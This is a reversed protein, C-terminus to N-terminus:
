AAESVATAFATAENYLENHNLCHHLCTILRGFLNRLAAAHADGAARRRDYHDRCGPSKTLSTFAWVHGTAMLYKNAIRRYSVSSGSGSAWTLPAAGAYARLGRATAFRTNDDGLEAFLRLAILPGVGPFSRYIASHPHAEFATGAHEALETATHDAHNLADLQALTRIGMTEEVVPHTRLQRIRFHDFLRDAQDDLLRTRGAEALTTRVRTRSLRAALAPTPAIALLARAEPRLLGNPLEQWATIAAPFYERLQSRLRNFHRQRARAASQYERVLVAIATAAPTNVPLPRHHILDTRLINALLAADRRDSKQRTPHLRGRYRAVVAPNIAYVTQGRSVLADVLLGTGTEIAIPVDRRRHRSSPNAKALLRLCETIGEPTEPIRASAIIEGSDDVVAVDNLGESWDIGAFCRPM